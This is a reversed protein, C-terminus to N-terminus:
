DVFTFKIGAEAACQILAAERNASTKYITSDADNIQALDRALATNGLMGVPSALLECFPRLAEPIRSAAPYTTGLRRALPTYPYLGQPEYGLQECVFGLCCQKGAPNRLSGGDEAYGWRSREITFEKM